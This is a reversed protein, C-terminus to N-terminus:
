STSTLPDVVLTLCTLRGGSFSSSASWSSGSEKSSEFDGVLCLDLFFFEEVEAVFNLFDRECFSCCVFQFINIVLKLIM